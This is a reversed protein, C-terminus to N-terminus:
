TIIFTSILNLDIIIISRSSRRFSFFIHYQMLKTMLAMQHGFNRSFSLAKVNKNTRALDAIISWSTDKSGDNVLIIEYDYSPFQQLINTVTKYLVTLTEEENYIPVIISLKKKM